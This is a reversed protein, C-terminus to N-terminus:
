YFFVIRNIVSMFIKHVVIDITIGTNTKWTLMIINLPITFCIVAAVANLLLTYYHKDKYKKYQVFIDPLLSHLFAIKLIFHDDGNHQHQIGKYFSTQM